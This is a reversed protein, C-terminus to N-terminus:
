FWNGLFFYLQGEGGADLGHAWGVRVNFPQRWAVTTETLLELGLSKKFAGPRAELPDDSAQAIDSFVSMKLRGLFFPVSSAGFFLDAVPLRYAIQALVYRDGVATGVPYGRLYGSGFVVNDLQDLLLNREPAPGLAYRIRGRTRGRGYAGNLRGVLAHRGWLGQYRSYSFLVEATSFDSGFAPDRLRVTVGGSQGEEPTISEPWREADQYSLSFSLGAVLRGEPFRPPSDLPDYQPTANIGPAYQTVDYRLTYGVSHGTRNVPLSLSVAGSTLREQYDQRASDYIAARGLTRTNHLLGLGVTARSGRYAYAANVSYAEESPQTALDATLIHLAAADSATASLGVQSGVQAIDSFSFSPTWAVPWFTETFDYPRDPLPSAASLPRPPPPRRTTAGMALGPTPQFPIEALDYGGATIAQFVLRRGDPSVAPDLAGGLTRTLRHRAGTAVNLAYLDFIGTRDSAFIVWAGDPSFRPHLELAGDDTLPRTAGTAADIAILDRGRRQSLRTAIVTQGDPSIHPFGVQDLGGPDYLVSLAGTALELRVLRTRGAVVQVAAVWGPGCAPERLRAGRTLRRLDATPRHFSYLDSWSYVGEHREVQDLVITEGDPCVDYTDTADVRTFIEGAGDGTVGPARAQIARPHHGDSEISLLTGDPLFRPRGHDRGLTTIMQPRTVGGEAELRAEAALAQATLDGQWARWIDEVTQGFAEKAAWNMAYPVIDDSVAHNMRAVGAAGRGSAVWHIFHGGYLYWVNAGPWRLPIHVAEDLGFLRGALAQTRLYGNFTASHVRGHGSTASELWVALGEVLFRPMNQNPAYGKGILGNLRKPWGSITDLHLIHVYEHFILQRLWDDFENLNGDLSPPAAYLNILLYPQATASGNAADGFDTLLVQTRETPLSALIPSLTRWAEECIRAAQAALGSLHAPAHVQFHATDITRWEVRGDRAGASGVGCLLTLLTLILARRLLSSFSPRSPSSVSPGTTLDPQPRSM